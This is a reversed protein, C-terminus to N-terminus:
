GATLVVKTCGDLKLDFIRYAAAGDALALRHSIVTTLDYKGAQVIPVLEPIIRRAPCRGATYTLNKDYAELPSFALQSGHHVGVVSITGGPRVIDYATRAAEPTGVVEMAADAGRGDTAERLLAVADQTTINVPTAGLTEGLRLREPITDLVFIREAGFERAAIITMLGVPGCGIIACVTGAAVGARQACFYGTSFVDGLLLAEDHSVGEALPLLTADALPVRVYEAQGGQLGQGHEVWGYLQGQPCRATLGCKCYFCHGCNTTFPTLVQDGTKLTTVSPGAEVVEGTFEHGMVTGSDQGHERCHYVHMDSGCIATLKVKVIVDSPALIRPEPVQEHRISRNGHFTLANM